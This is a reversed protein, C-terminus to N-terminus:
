FLMEGLRHLLAILLVIPLGALLIVFPISWTVALLEFPALAVSRWTRPQVHRTINVYDNASPAIAGREGSARREADNVGAGPLLLAPPVPLTAARTTTMTM